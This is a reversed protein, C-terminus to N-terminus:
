GPANRMRVRAPVAGSRSLAFKEMAISVDAEFREEGRQTERGQSGVSRVNRLATECTACSTVHTSMPRSTRAVHTVDRM